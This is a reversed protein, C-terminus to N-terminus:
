QKALREHERQCSACYDNYWTGLEDGLDESVMTKTDNKGDALLSDVQRCRRNELMVWQEWETQLIEKEVSNVVRMAVLLDHRYTGLRQRTRQTRQRSSRFELTGSSLLPLTPADVDSFQHADYFISYCSSTEPNPFEGKQSLLEDVDRVYIAKSMVHNPSVGLRAIFKGANREHWWGFTDRYSHFTNFLVSLLLLTLILSHATCTKYAWTLAGFIGELVATLASQFASAGSQLLLDTLSRNIPSRRLEINLATGDVQLQTIDTSHGLQGFIQVAKKTRSHAGLRRVQDTVVDTLDLADLNLDHMAHQEIVNRFFFHTKLWEIKTFIALKCRAKAVHTIVIKSLLRYDRRHPLDWATRKDTVVYCLHDNYVDVVQYDRVDALQTRGLADLTSINFEFDRRLRGEGLNIWPGQKLDRARREHQLLQWVASKDGFLVHFLAKPSVDFLKESALHLNGAPTYNVPQAPLKFKSVDKGGAAIGKHAHSLTKDVRISARFDTANTMSRGRSHVPGDGTPSGPSLDEWSELSPSREPAEHEMKILRKIVNELSEPEEASSNRVLYNLRRLLLKLPELFTKITIRTPSGDDKAKKLHLFLFDCDRGPAATVEDITNLAVGSALVLGLHHSYFYIESATVYARGPYDQQNNPNWTARFVLVLREDKKTGPFLLRFQADQTKLQLPYYNPYTPMGIAARVQKASEADLSITNRHMQGPSPTRSRSQGYPLSLDTASAYVPTSFDRLLSPVPGKVPSTSPLVLPSPPEAAKGDLLMKSEGRELRNVFAWDSSGWMNAMMGNPIGGIRDAAASLGREGTVVVATKSLSTSAPPNTLTSPALTSPPMDRLSLTFTSKPRVLEPEGPKMPIGPGVPLSGHSAAILSAIGGGVPPSSPSPSMQSVATSKRHLDLKKTIRSAHERGGEDRDIITSRRASDMGDKLTDTAPVPLSGARETISMDDAAGPELSSLVITGFEPVPSPSIAFAPDATEPRGSPLAGTGKPDELAKSKATEFVDIWEALGNQTEAQLMIAHKKTKVEFCFRREESAAPRVNCLLVGIHESEEVGGARAGQVLWGFIGNKVFAWRRIWFARTPKGSYTRLYLWGQKEATKPFTKKPSRGGIAASASHAHAGLHPITSASYDELERSPRTSMEAADELEKRAAQLERRFVRESSEMERAWGKVREMEQASRGFTAATNDRSIRMERWQDFFIRVLLKDLTFRLQPALLFFDMSAKLYAKRAEHLQFADERLSSPEKSKAQSAYKSQLNDFTKQSQELIRRVDKFARLDHNLFGRIPDVVLVTLRKVIAVMSAWYDKAGENYRRMALLTYDHDLAAESISTPLMAHSTFYSLINELASSEAVLRSTSKLYEELWKEILDVQESFYITTARSTPSDLAAEKLGM